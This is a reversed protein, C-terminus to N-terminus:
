VIISDLIKLINCAGDYYGIISSISATITQGHAFDNRLNVLSKLHMKDNSANTLTQFQVSWDPNIIDLIRQIQGCSPNWSSELINKEFYNKAENNTNKILHDYFLQKLVKEITGCARIVSYSILYPCNSDLSNSKIYTEIKSLETKCDNIVNINNGSM